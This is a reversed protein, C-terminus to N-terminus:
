MLILKIRLAKRAQSCRLFVCWPMKQRELEQTWQQSTTPLEEEQATEPSSVLRSSVLSWRGVCLM